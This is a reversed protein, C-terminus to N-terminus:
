LRLRDINLIKENDQLCEEIFSIIEHMKENELHLEDNINELEECKCLLKKCTEVLTEQTIDCNYLTSRTYNERIIM